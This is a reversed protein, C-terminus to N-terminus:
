CHGKSKRKSNLDKKKKKFKNKMKRSYLRQYDNEIFHTIFMGFGQIVLFLFITKRQELEWIVLKRQLSFEIQFSKGMLKWHASTLRIRMGNQRIKQGKPNERWEQHESIESLSKERWHMRKLLYNMWYSFEYREKM